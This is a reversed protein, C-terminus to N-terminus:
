EFGAQTLFYTANRRLIKRRVDHMMIKRRAGVAPKRQKLAIRRRRLM